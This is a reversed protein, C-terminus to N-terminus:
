RAVARWNKQDKPDGGQFEYGDVVQGKRIKAPQQAAGGAAGGRPALYKALAENTDTINNDRMFAFFAAEKAPDRNVVQRGTLPDMLPQGRSDMAPTGLLSTVDGAEVKYGGSKPVAPLIGRRVAEIQTATANPNQEKFLAVGAEAAAAADARGRGRDAMSAAHAAAARGEARDARAEGRDARADAKLALTNRFENQSWNYVAMPDKLSTLSATLHNVDKFNMPPLARGDLAQREIAISGNESRKVGTINGGDPLFRDYFGRAAEINGANVAAITEGLAKDREAGELQIKVFSQASYDKIAQQAADTKGAQMLKAAKFQTAALYDDVTATRAQGDPGALRGQMFQGVEGELAKMAEAEADAETAKRQEREARSQEWGFRQDEREAQVQERRMRQAAVPNSRAVVDAMASTRAKDMADQSMTGATRQGMFDTVGQQAILGADGGAKPAVTYAKKADDYGIDYQGSEAAARLQDGQEATFGESQEPTAQAIARMDKRDRAAEYDLVMRQGLLYGKTLADWKGMM